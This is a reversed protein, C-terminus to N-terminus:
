TVVPIFGQGSYEYVSKIVTGQEPDDIEKGILRWNAATASSMGPPAGTTQLAAVIAAETWAFSADLDTYTYEIGYVTVSPYGAAVFKAIEAASYPGGNTDLLREDDVPIDQGRLSVNRPNDAPGKMTVTGGGESAPRAYTLEVIKVEPSDGPMIHRRQCVLTNNNRDKVVVNYQNRTSNHAPLTSSLLSNKVWYRETITWRGNEDSQEDPYGPFRQPSDTYGIMAM